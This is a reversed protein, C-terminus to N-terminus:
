NSNNLFCRLNKSRSPHRLKRLAKAEIQRIRERTVSFQQGVEELTHDTNMGIGFRMRLVREERPTLSGLIRTTVERLNSHIAADVPLVANKDEIFDGLNNGDEDGVTNDLSIPEKAIKIVKSVKDVSMGLKDAIQAPTPEYGLEHLLQRSTRIIKNITEIMHVPIRIIRAQDAIARTISQRIWWTAYTSFKYGRRYEFKDVAKMLGINGEQILDLFPLGRNAYKKAISIVLRLNAEVMENKARESQLTGAKITHVIQKFQKIPIITLKSIDNLSSITNKIMDKESNLFVKWNSNQTSDIINKKWNKDLIDSNNYVNLFDNRNIKYKNALKLLNIDHNKLDTNINHLSNLIEDIRKTNLKIESLKQLIININQNYEEHENIDKNPNSKYYEKIINLIKESSDSIIGMHDLVTPMLQKELAVISLNNNDEAEEIEEDENEIDPELEIDNSKFPNSNNPDVSELDILDRIMLKENELNSYWKIFFQMATPTHCLGQIIIQSGEEIRKAIAVEDSRSLLNVSCMTKLYLRVPDIPTDDSSANDDIQEVSSGNYKFDDDDEDREIDINIDFKIDEEDTDDVLDLGDEIYSIDNDFPVEDEPEKNLKIDENEHINLKENNTKTSNSKQQIKPTM